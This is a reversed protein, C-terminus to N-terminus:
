EVACQQERCVAKTGAERSACAACGVSGCTVRAFNTQMRKVVDKRAPERWRTGCGPCSCPVPPSLACDADVTCARRPSQPWAPAREDSREEFVGPGGQAEAFRLLDKTLCEHAKFGAATAEAASSFSGGGCSRCQTAQVHPCEWGSHFVKTEVDRLLLLEKWLWPEVPQEDAWLGRKAARAEDELKVLAADKRASPLVWAWGAKVLAEHLWAKGVRVRGYRTVEEEEGLRKVDADPTRAEFTVVEGLTADRTFLMAHGAWRQPVRPSIVDTLMVTELPTGGLASTAKGTSSLVVVSGRLGSDIGVYPTGALALSTLLTVM